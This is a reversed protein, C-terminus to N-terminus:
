AVASRPSISPTPQPLSPVASPSDLVAADAVMPPSPWALPTIVALTVTPDVERAFMDSPGPIPPLLTALAGLAPPEGHVDPLQALERLAQPASQPRDAISLAALRDLWAKVDPEVPLPQEPDRRGGLLERATVGLAYLDSWPGLDWPRNHQQEPPMYGSTGGMPLAVSPRGWRRGQGLDSLLVRLRGEQSTLLLNHPKLDLHLWQRAHLHALGHLIQRVLPAVWTWGLEGRLPALSGHRAYELVMCTRGALAEPVNQTPARLLDYVLVVAEHDLSAIARAEAWLASEHIHDHLAKIAVYEGLHRHRALWVRGQGGEDLPHLLTFPGLSGHVTTTSM